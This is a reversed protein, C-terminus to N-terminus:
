IDYEKFKEILGPNHRGFLSSLADEKSRFVVEMGYVKLKDQLSVLVSLDEIDDKVYFYM